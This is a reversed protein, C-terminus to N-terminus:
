SGLPLVGLPLMVTPNAVAMLLVPMLLTDLGPLVQYTAATAEPGTGQKDDMGGIRYGTLLGWCAMTAKIKGM